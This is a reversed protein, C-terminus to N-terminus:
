DDFSIMGSSKKVESRPPNSSPKDKEEEEVAVKEEEVAVKRTYYLSAFAIIIGIGSLLYMPNINPLVLENDKPPPSKLPRQGRKKKSENSM